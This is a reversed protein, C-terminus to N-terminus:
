NEKIPYQKDFYVWFLPTYGRLTGDPAYNEKIPAIGTVKKIIAMPKTSMHWEEQFRLKILKDVGTVETITTDFFAYPPTPRQMEVSRSTTLLGNIDAPKLANNFPFDYAKVVGSKAKFLIANIMAIRSSEEINQVWWDQNDAPAKIFVDYQIRKTLPTMKDLTVTSDTAIFFLLRNGAFQGSDDYTEILPAIGKVIKTIQLTTTDMTWAEQFRYKNINAPNYVHSIVEVEVMKGSLTDPMMVMEKTPTIKARLAAIDMVVDHRVRGTLEDLKFDFLKYQGSLAAELVAQNLKERAPGELNQVWYDATSDINEVLVDYEIKDTVVFPKKPTCGIVALLLVIIILKNM